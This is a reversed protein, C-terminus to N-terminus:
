IGHAATARQGEGNIGMAKRDWGRRIHTSFPLVSLSNMLLITIGPMYVM